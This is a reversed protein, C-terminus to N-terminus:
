KAPSVGFPRDARKREMLVKMRLLLFKDFTQQSVTRCSAKMLKNDSEDGWNAYLRPNGFWAMKQLLHATLHRKPVELEAVEETHHLFCTWCDWCKQLEEASLRSGCNQWLRVLGVMAKGAALLSPGLDGTVIARQQLVSVLFLLFGWTQAGKTRLKRDSNSGIKKRSFTVRSLSERPNAAKYERYFAKLQHRILLCSNEIIEEITGTRVWVGITILHWLTYKCFGLMVGLYICHLTDITLIAEPTLGLREDFLPNRNRALTESTPRWIRIRKPFATAHELDAVDELGRQPVVRDGEFLGLAPVPQALSLGRSGSSRKDYICVALLVELMERSVIVVIIECRDCARFWDQSGNSRWPSTTPSLNSTNYLNHKSANCGFCPRLSDVWSPFGCTTAYEAWDAKMFLLVAKCHLPQGAKAARAKDGARWEQGDHRQHPWTGDALATLSWLVLSWLQWFTCWGRCGCICCVSKRVAAWLRRAGNVENIIWWGIVGDNHSYPVGDVFLSVPAFKDAPNGRVVPNERYAAPLTDEALLKDLQVALQPKAEWIEDVLEHPPIVTLTHKSRALDDMAYSPVDLEYLLHTQRLPELVRTLHRQFHGTPASPNYSLEKAEAVGSEAAFHLLTCLQAASLVREYYLGLVYDVLKAGPGLELEDDSSGGSSDSGGDAEVEAASKESDSSEWEHARRPRVARVPGPSDWPHKAAPAM